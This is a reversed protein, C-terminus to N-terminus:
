LKIKKSIYGSGIMIRILNMVPYLNMIQVFTLFIEVGQKTINMIAQFFNAYMM